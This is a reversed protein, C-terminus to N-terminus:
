KNKQLLKASSLETTSKKFLQDHLKTWQWFIWGICISRIIGVWLPLAFPGLYMNTVPSFTITIMLLGPFLLQLQKKFNPYPILALLPITWLLFPRSLVKGTFLFLFFYGVTVSLWFLHKKVESIKLAQKTYIFFFILLSLIFLPSTIHQVKDTVPGTIEYNKYIEIVEESHTFADIMRVIIAPVSDIQVGRIQHYVLSVSLSSRYLLLPTSWIMLFAIGNIILSKKWVKKELAIGILGLPGNVFKLAVALWYGTWKTLIQLHQNKIIIPLSISLVMAGIFVLDMSDYIFHNAKTTAIIYFLLNILKIKESVKLKSLTFYILFFIVSDIFLIQGRYAIGYNLHILSEHTTKDIFHPLYFLPITAPPYEYWQDLYPRTGSDWLHAYPMYSYVIESFEPPPNLWIFLRTLFFLIVIFISKWNM